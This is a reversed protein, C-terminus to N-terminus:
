MIFHYYSFFYSPRRDPLIIVPKERLSFEILVKGTEKQKFASIDYIKTKYFDQSSQGKFLFDFDKSLLTDSKYQLTLSLKTKFRFLQKSELTDLLRVEDNRMSIIFGNKESTLIKQGKSSLSFKKLTDALSISKYLVDTKSRVRFHSIEAVTKNKASLITYSTVEFISDSEIDNGSTFLVTDATKSFYVNQNQSILALSWLWM